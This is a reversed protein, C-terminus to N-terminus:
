ACRCRSRRPPWPRACASSQRVPPRPTRGPMLVAFEEGGVRFVSDHEGACRRLTEAVRRLAEDGIPHGHLDNILKFDDIDISALTFPAGTRGLEIELAEHFARHGLLGTLNDFRAQHAMTEILRANDLATATQAVVGKLLDLLAPTPNLREPRDAVSVHLSGYFHGHAVIPVVILANSGTQALVGRVYPDETDPEIFLPDRRAGTLLEELVPTDSRRIRLDKVLEVHGTVARCVLAEEAEEDWVFTAVRDCDVM